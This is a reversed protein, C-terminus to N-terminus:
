NGHAYQRRLLDIEADNGDWRLEARYFLVADRASMWSCCPRRMSLSKPNTQRRRASMRLCAFAVKSIRITTRGEIRVM